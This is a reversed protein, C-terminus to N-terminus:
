TSSHVLCLYYQFLSPYHPLLNQIYPASHSVATSLLTSSSLSTHDVVLVLLPSVSFQRNDNMKNQQGAQNLCDLWGECCRSFDENARISMDIDLLIDNSAVLRIDGDVEVISRNRFDGLESSIDCRFTESM